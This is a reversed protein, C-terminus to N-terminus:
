VDNLYYGNMKLKFKQQLNYVFTIQYNFKFVVKKVVTWESM